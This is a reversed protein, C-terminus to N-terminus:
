AAYGWWHVPSGKLGLLFWEAQGSGGGAVLGTMAISGVCWLPLLFIFQSGAPVDLACWHCQTWQALTNSPHGGTGVGAGGSCLVCHQHHAFRMFINYECYFISVHTKFNFAAGHRLLATIDHLM